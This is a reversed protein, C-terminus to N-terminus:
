LEQKFSQLINLRMDMETQKEKSIKSKTIKQVREAEHSIFDNGKELVKEMIKIYTKASKRDEKTKILNLAKNANDLIELRKKADHEQIFNTSFQDFERLCSPLGM